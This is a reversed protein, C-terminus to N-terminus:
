WTKIGTIINGNLKKMKTKDVLTDPATEDSVKRRDLYGM